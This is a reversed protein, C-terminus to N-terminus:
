NEVAPSGQLSKPYSDQITCLGRVPQLLALLRELGTDKTNVNDPLERPFHETNAPGAEDPSFFRTGTILMSTM